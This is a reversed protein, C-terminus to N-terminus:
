LSGLIIIVRMKSNEIESSILDDDGSILTAMWWWSIAPARGSGSGDGIPGGCICQDNAKEVMVMRSSKLRRRWCHRQDFPNQHVYVCRTFCKDSFLDQSVRTAPFIFRSGRHVYVRSM